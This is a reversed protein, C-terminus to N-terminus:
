NESLGSETVGGIRLDMLLNPERAKALAVKLYNETLAAGAEHLTVASLTKGVMSERFARNKSAALDRLARNRQKRVSVPVSDADKAAPTGPRESYTFM